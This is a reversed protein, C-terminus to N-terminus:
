NLYRFEASAFLGQCFASLAAQRNRAETEQTRRGNLPLNTFRTWFRHIAALEAENPERAFALEYAYALKEQPTGPHEALRRAMADAAAIVQPSNMLFLSQSPVNTSDRSGNVLSADPFDFTSLFEPVQDRVIPLYVSRCLDPREAVQRALTFLAQRGEGARAVPSGPVPTLDLTGAVALMADRIAEAELRKPNMRWHLHNDPDVKFSVEDHRSSMQYSRTLMIERLMTKVSWGNEVFRIALHDLLEPHSPKEGMIGFNDPTRVIATGMLKLWLRNVMVRATLPNDQSAIFWALDLRGSGEGINLPEGPACLVEVLGRPVTDAPQRLDGRVLLPTNVPRSRELMGMALTRPEGGPQFQDLDAKVSEARDTSARIRLFNQVQRADRDEARTAFVESRMDDAQERAEEYQSKLTAYESPSLAALASRQGTSADLEILAGPNNNQLQQYTGYLTESSLFIGALAYYDRQTVPDFKHDHCRACALTLGLVSQSLADIQEDVVELAFQRRDRNNHGKPGIALFGTAVIKQAQDAASDYRMLDGAIQEKLFQDYPKDANLSDIVYDRYRWAQPYPVNVEKGSSEAYRAVDLWHRGWREGFRPSELYGDIVKAVAGASDDRVFHEVEEPTPPLGTLDFAIRRILTRRDAQAMPALGAKELSALIWRDIPKAGWAADKVAPLPLSVPKQFAWHKRGEAMDIERRAGAASAVAEERPDPAGMEIWKKFNAVVEAPLPNKPPMQLEDNQWTLAEYISSAASNGATVGPRGSEGGLVAGQRTDLSLGGKIKQSASHCEYCRDVLVPRIHKEFFRIGEDAGAGAEDPALASPSNQARAFAPCTLALLIVLRLHM